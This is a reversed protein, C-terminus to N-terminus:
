SRRSPRTIKLGMPSGKVAPSKSPSKLQPTVPPTDNKSTEKIPTDGTKSSSPDNTKKKDDTKASTPTSKGPRKVHKLTKAVPTGGSVSGGLSRPAHSQQKSLQSMVMRDSTVRELDKTLASVEVNDKATIDILKQTIDILRNINSDLASTKTDLASVMTSLKEVDETMRKASETIRVMSLLAGMSQGHLLDGSRLAPNAGAAVTVIISSLGSMYSVVPTACQKALTGMEHIVVKSDPHRLRQVLLLDRIYSSTLISERMSYLGTPPFVHVANIFVIGDHVAMYSDRLLINLEAM